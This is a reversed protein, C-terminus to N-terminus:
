LTVSPIPRISGDYVGIRLTIRGGPSIRLLLLHNVITAHIVKIVVSLPLAM